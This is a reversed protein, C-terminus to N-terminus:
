LEAIVPDREILVVRKSCRLSAYSASGAFPEILTDHEPTPYLPALRYKAGYFPFFPKLRM